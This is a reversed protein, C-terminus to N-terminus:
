GNSGFFGKVAEWKSIMAWAGGGLFPVAKAVAKVRVRTRELSGVRGNVKELDANAAALDAKMSKQNTEVRALRENSEGVLGVVKTIELLIDTTDSM